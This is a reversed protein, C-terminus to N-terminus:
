FPIEEDEQMNPSNQNDTDYQYNEILIGKDRLDELTNNAEQGRTELITHDQMQRNIDDIDAMAERLEVNGDVDRMGDEVIIELHQAYAELEPACEADVDYAIDALENIADIKTEAIDELSPQSNEIGDNTYEAYYPVGNVNYPMSDYAAVSQDHAVSTVSDTMSQIWERRSSVPGNQAQNIRLGAFEETGEVPTLAVKLAENLRGWDEMNQQAAQQKEQMAVMIDAISKLDFREEGYAM